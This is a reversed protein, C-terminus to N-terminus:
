GSGYGTESEEPEAPASRPKGKAPEVGCIVLGTATSCKKRFAATTLTGKASNCSGSWRNGLTAAAVACERCPKSSSHIAKLNAPNMPDVPPDHTACEALPVPDHDVGYAAFHGCAHCKWLDRELVRKRIRAWLTGDLHPPKTSTAALRSKWGDIATTFEPDPRRLRHRRPRPRRPTVM